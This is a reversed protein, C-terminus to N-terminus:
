WGCSFVAWNVPQHKPLTAGPEVNPTLESTVKIMPQLLFTQMKRWSDWGAVAHSHHWSSLQKKGKKTIELTQIKKNSVSTLFLTLFLTHSAIQKHTHTHIHTWWVHQPSTLSGRYSQILIEVNWLTQTPNKSVCWAVLFLPTFTNIFYLFLTSLYM